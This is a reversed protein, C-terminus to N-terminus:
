GSVLGPCRGPPLGFASHVRDRCRGAVAMEMLAVALAPDPRPSPNKPPGPRAPTARHWTSVFPFRKGTDEPQHDAPWVTMPPAPRIGPSPLM